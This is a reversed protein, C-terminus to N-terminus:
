GRGRSIALMTKLKSVDPAADSLATQRGHVEPMGIHAITGFDFPQEENLGINLHHGILCNDIPPVLSLLM